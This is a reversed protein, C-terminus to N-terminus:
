ILILTLLIFSLILLVLSVLKIIELFKKSKEIGPLQFKKLHYFVTFTIKVTILAVIIYLFVLVINLSEIIM